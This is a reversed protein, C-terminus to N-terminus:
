PRVRHPLRGRRALNTHAHNDSRQAEKDQDDTGEGQGTRGLQLCLATHATGQDRGIPEDAGIEHQSKGLQQQAGDADGEDGLHRRGLVLTHHHAQPEAHGGDAVVEGADNGTDPSGTHRKPHDPAHKDHEAQEGGHEDERDHFPQLPCGRAASIIIQYIRRISIGQM